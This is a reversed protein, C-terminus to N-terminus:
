FKEEDGIKAEEDLKAKEQEMAVKAANADILNRNANYYALQEPSLKSTDVKGDKYTIGIKNANETVM